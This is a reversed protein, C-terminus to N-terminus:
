RLFAAPEAVGLAVGVRATLTTNTLLERQCFTGNTIEAALCDGSRRAWTRTLKLDHENGVPQESSKWSCTRPTKGPIKNNNTAGLFVGVVPGQFDEGM